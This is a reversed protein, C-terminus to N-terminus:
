AGTPDDILHSKRPGQCQPCLGLFQIQTEEVLFGHSDVPVACALQDTTCRADVIAGCGRCVLHHHSDRFALEFRARTGIVHLRQVLRHDVLTHLVDYITQTAVSGLRDEVGRRVSELDAHPNDALDMLVAVRPATVRLGSQKLLATAEARQMTRRYAM